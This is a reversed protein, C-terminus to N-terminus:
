SKNIKVTSGLVWKRLLKLSYLVLCSTGDGQLLVGVTNYVFVSISGITTFLRVNIGRIVFQEDRYRRRRGM